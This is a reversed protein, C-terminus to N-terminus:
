SICSGVFDASSEDIRRKLGGSGEWGGGNSPYFLTGELSGGQNENMSSIDKTNM